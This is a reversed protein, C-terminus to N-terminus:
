FGGSFRYSNKSMAITDFLSPGIKHPIHESRTPETEDLAANPSIEEVLQLPPCPCGAWDGLPGSRSKHHQNSGSLSQSFTQLETPDLATQNQQNPGSHVGVQTCAPEPFLYGQSSLTRKFLRWALLACLPDTVSCHSCPQRNSNTHKCTNLKGWPQPKAARQETWLAPIHYLYVLNFKYLSLRPSGCQRRCSFSLNLAAEQSASIAHRWNM